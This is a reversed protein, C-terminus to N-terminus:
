KTLRYINIRPKNFLRFKYGETGLGTSIYIDSNEVKYHNINYKKAGDKKYLPGYIPLNVTGGLSHGALVLNFPNNNLDDIYDPEHMLLITYLPPNKELTNLYELTPTLKDNISAKDAFSSAGAIFLYNYGEKYITDYTNNLNIFGSNKIINTWEDFKYDNDGIIAYKGSSSNIKNLINTIEDAENAKLKTNKSILDGTLVIIDPNAENIKEVLNILNEKNFNKGYLIDSIHIIKFGDFNDTLNDVKIKYEKETIINPSIFSGYLLIGIFLLVIFIVIKLAIHKM